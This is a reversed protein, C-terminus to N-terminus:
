MERPELQHFLKVNKWHPGAEARQLTKSFVIKPSNNMLEAMAPDAQIAEPTPWYSKMMEYTTRGFVLVSDAKTQSHTYNEYEEDKKMAKFWDIEGNPGAFLDDISLHIFVGVKKM